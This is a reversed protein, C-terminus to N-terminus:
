QPKSRKSASGSGSRGGTLTTLPHTAMSSSRVRHLTTRKLLHQKAVKSLGRPPRVVYTTPGPPARVDAHASGGSRAM